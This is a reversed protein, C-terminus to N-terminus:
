GGYKYFAACTGESSVMCPGVPNGPTCRTGFLPCQPPRQKGKLIEGCRCGRPEEAPILKIDLRKEADFQAYSDRIALGSLPITGLGRWETDVPEFIKSVMQQARANGEWRVARTYANEVRAEGQGVQRALMILAQLIDAPEFGGVVCALGYEEVLPQYAGAGIITSVHGPCLLGDIQLEPDNLLAMLPPPMVKHTSFVAFNDVNNNQAAMITAAIGPTTTEFGVGLFIILEDPHRKALELSDMPSYVIDVKAGQSSAHALSLGNSGPVRFLDGFLAIRVKPQEAMSLIADIHSASTVCVPCGPGSILELGEPLLSRLGNRFIAMTHTGCVEMIRFPRTVSRRLEDLLPAALTQDRFEDLYKM